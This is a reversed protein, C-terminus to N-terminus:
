YTLSDFPISFGKMKNEKVYLERDLFVLNNKDKDFAIAMGREKLMGKLLDLHMLIANKNEEIQKDTLM